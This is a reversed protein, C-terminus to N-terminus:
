RRKGKLLIPSKNGSGLLDELIRLNIPTYYDNKGDITLVFMDCSQREAVQLTDYFNKALRPYAFKKNQYIKTRADKYQLIIYKRKRAM